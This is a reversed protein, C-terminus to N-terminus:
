RQPLLSVPNLPKGNLRIQFELMTQSAGTSGMEAIKQGAKVHQNESVLNKSNHAYATVYGGPTHRILVLNGYEALRDSAYVVEGDAAARVPDGQKGGIRIGKINQVPNYQAIVTGDAPWVWKIGSTSSGSAIVTSPVAISPVSAQGSTTRNAAKTPKSVPVTSAISTTGVSTVTAAPLAQTSIASDSPAATTKVSNDSDASANSYNQLRLSQNVYIVYDDGLNNLKAVDRYDLNYRQAIKSLTDGPQVTYYQPAVQYSVGARTQVLPKSACGSVLALVMSASVINLRHRFKFTSKFLSNDSAQIMKLYWFIVHASM